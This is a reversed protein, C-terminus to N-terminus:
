GKRDEESLSEAYPSSAIIDKLEEGDMFRNYIEGNELGYKSSGDDGIFKGDINFLDSYKKSGSGSKLEVDDAFSDLDEGRSAADLKLHNCTRANSLHGNAVDMWQQQTNQKHGWKLCFFLIKRKCVSKKPANQLAPNAGVCENSQSGPCVGYVADHVCQGYAQAANRQSNVQNNPNEHSADVVNVPNGAWTNKAILFLFLFVKKYNKMKMM